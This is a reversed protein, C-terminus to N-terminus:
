LLTISVQGHGNRVGSSNSQNAGSNLSGGGGGNALDSCSCTVL